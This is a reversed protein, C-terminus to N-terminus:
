ILKRNPDAELCRQRTVLGIAKGCPLVNIPARGAPCLLREFVVANGNGANWGESWGENM